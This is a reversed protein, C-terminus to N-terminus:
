MICLYHYSFSFCGSQWLHPVALRKIYITLVTFHGYSVMLYASHAYTHVPFLCIVNYIVLLILYCTVLSYGSYVICHTPLIPWSVCCLIFCSFYWIPFSCGFLQWFLNGLVLMCIPFLRILLFVLISFEFTLWFLNYSKGAYLFLSIHFFFLSQYHLSCGSYPMQHRFKICFYTTLNTEINGSGPFIYTNIVTFHQKIGCKEKVQAITRLNVCGSESEKLLRCLLASFISRWTSFLVGM